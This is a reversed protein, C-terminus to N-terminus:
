VRGGREGGPCVLGSVTAVVYACVDVFGLVVFGKMMVLSKSSQILLRWFSPM